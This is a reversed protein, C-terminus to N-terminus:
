QVLFSTFYVNNINGKLLLENIRKKLEESLKVTANDAMLQEVSQSRLETIIVSQVQPIKNKIEEEVNKDPLELVIRLKLFRNSSSKDKINTIFEGADFTAELKETKVKGYGDGKEQPQAVNKMAFTAVGFSIGAALIILVVGAIILKITNPNVGAKAEKIEADNVAEDAM